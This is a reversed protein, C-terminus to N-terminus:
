KKNNFLCQFLFLILILGYFILYGDIIGISKNEEILISHAMGFSGIIGICIYCIGGLNITEDYKKYLFMKPLTLITFPNYLEEKNNIL